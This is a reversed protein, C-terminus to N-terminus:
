FWSEDDGGMMAATAAAEDAEDLDSWKDTNTNLIKPKLSDESQEALANLRAELADEQEIDNVFKIDKGNTIIIDDNKNPNAM